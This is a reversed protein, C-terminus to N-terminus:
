LEDSSSNISFTFFPISKPKKDLTIIHPAGELPFVVNATFSIVLKDLLKLNLYKSRFSFWLKASMLFSM